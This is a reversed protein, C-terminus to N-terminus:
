HITVENPYVYLKDEDWVIMAHPLIYMKEKTLQEIDSLLIM